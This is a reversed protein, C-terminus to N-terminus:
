IADAFREAGDDVEKAPDAKAAALYGEFKPGFMTHPNIWGQSKPRGNWEKFKYRCVLEIDAITYGAEFITKLHRTVESSPIRYPRGTIASFREMAEGVFAVWPVPEKKTPQHTLPIPNCTSMESKSESKALLKSNQYGKQEGRQYGKQVNSEANSVASPQETSCNTAGGNRALSKTRAVSVRERLAIYVSKATGKLSDSSDVGEFYLRAVAGMVENQVKLSCERVALWYDEQLYFGRKYDAM